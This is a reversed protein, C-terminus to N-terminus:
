KRQAHKKKTRKNNMREKLLEDFRSGQYHLVDLRINGLDEKKPTADM